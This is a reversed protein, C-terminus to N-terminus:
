YFPNDICNIFEFFLKQILRNYSKYSQKRRIILIILSNNLWGM